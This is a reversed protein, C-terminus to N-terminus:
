RKWRHYLFESKYTPMDVNVPCDNTCGKCSLCLDLAEMVEASQWGGTIVDGELMEFLLRTRGRTTHREERTAMFSPCMVDVGGPTRCKGVGVCRVTAHAVDFHDDQYAFHTSPRWPRYNEGLKLSEDLRYADVVKGPNMKWDPDWIRKFERFGQILE